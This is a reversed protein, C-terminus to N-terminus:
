LPQSFVNKIKELNKSLLFIEQDQSLFSTPSNSLTKKKREEM